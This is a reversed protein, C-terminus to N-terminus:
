QDHDILCKAHSHIDAKTKAGNAVAGASPCTRLVAGTASLPEPGHSSYTALNDCRPSHKLSGPTSNASASPPGNVAMGEFTQGDQLTLPRCKQSQALQAELLEVVSIDSEFSSSGLSSSLPRKQKMDISDSAATPSSSQQSVLAVPRCGIQMLIDANVVPREGMVHFGYGVAATPPIQGKTVANLSLYARDCAGPRCNQCVKYSCEKIVTYAM